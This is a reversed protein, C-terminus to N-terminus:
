VKKIFVYRLVYNILYCDSIWNKYFKLVFFIFCLVDLCINVM